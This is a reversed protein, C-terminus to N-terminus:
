RQGSSRTTEMAVLRAVLVALYFQGIVAELISFMRAASRVPTIDGYGLTTLTVFSHYVFASLTSSFQPGGSHLLGEPFHFSGPLYLEITGYVHAWGIGLLLYASVAGAITDSTVERDGLVLSLVAGTAFFFFAIDTALAGAWLPATDQFYLGWTTAFSPVALTLMIIRLRGSVGWISTLVVFWMAVDTVFKGAAMQSLFPTITAFVLLSVLLFTFRAKLVRGM